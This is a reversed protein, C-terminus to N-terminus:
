LDLDIENSDIVPIVKDEEEKTEEIESHSRKIGTRSFLRTDLGFEKVFKSTQPSISEYPEYILDYDKPVKLDAYTMENFRM